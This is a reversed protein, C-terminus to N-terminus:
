ASATPAVDEADQQYVIPHIATTTGNPQVCIAAGQGEGHRERRVALEIAKALDIDMPKIGSGLSYEETDAASLRRRALTVRDGSM